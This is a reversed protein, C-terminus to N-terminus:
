NNEYAQGWCLRCYKYQRIQGGTWNYVCNGEDDGSSTGYNDAQFNTFVFGMIGVNGPSGKDKQYMLRIKSLRRHKRLGKVFVLNEHRATMSCSWTFIFSHKKWCQIFGMRAGTALVSLEDLQKTFKLGSHAVLVSRQPYLFCSSSLNWFHFSFFYFRSPIEM